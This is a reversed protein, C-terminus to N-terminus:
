HDGNITFESKVFEWQKKIKNKLYKWVNCLKNKLSSNYNRSKDSVKTVNKQNNKTPKLAMYCVSSNQNICNVRM